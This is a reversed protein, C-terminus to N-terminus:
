IWPLYFISSLVQEDRKMDARSLSQLFCSNIFGRWTASLARRMSWNENWPSRSYLKATKHLVNHYMGWVPRQTDEALWPFSLMTWKPSNEMEYNQECKGWFIKKQNWYIMVYSFKGTSHSADSPASFISLTTLSIDARLNKGIKWDMKNEFM